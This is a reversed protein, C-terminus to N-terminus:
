DLYKRAACKKWKRPRKRQASQRASRSRRDIALGLSIIHDLGLSKLHDLGLSKLHDLGPSQPSVPAFIERVRLM